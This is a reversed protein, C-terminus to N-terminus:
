EFNRNIKNMKWFIAITLSIVGLVAIILGYFNWQENAYMFSSTPGIISLSQMQFIIGLALFIIGSLIM